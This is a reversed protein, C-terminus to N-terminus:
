RRERGRLIDQVLQERGKDTVRAPADGYLTRPDPAPPADRARSQGPQADGYGADKNFIGYAQHYAKAHARSRFIPAGTQLNFDTPVGKARADEIAEHVQKPHVALAESETKHEGFLGTGDGLPKDPFRRDFVAKSVEVGDILYRAKKGHGVIKGIM